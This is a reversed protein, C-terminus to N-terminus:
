LPSPRSSRVAFFTPIYYGYFIWFGMILGALTMVVNPNIVMGNTKGPCHTRM